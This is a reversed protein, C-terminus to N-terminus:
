VGEKYDAYGAGEEKLFKQLVGLDKAYDLIALRIAASRSVGLMSAIREVLEWVGLPLYVTKVAERM